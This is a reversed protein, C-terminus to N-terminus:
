RSPRPRRRLLALGAACCGLSVAGLMIGGALRVHDRAASEDTPAVVVAAADRPVDAAFVGDALLFPTAADYGAPGAAGGPGQVTPSYTPAGSGADTVEVVLTFPVDVPVADDTAREAAVAVWYDGPVSGTLDDFRNAYRVPASGEVLRSPEDAAYDGTDVAEEVENGFADRLPDLLVLEVDPEDSDLAALAADDQEPVDVRVALSGGWGVPVRYLVTGGQPVADAYTTGPELAPADDFSPSGSIAVPDGTEPVTVRPSDSPEPPETVLGQVPAEEVVRVAIPLDTPASSSYRDVTFTIEDATLCPDDRDDEAGISMAVGVLRQSVTYSGSSQDSGCDTQTGDAAPVRVTLGLGDGGDPSAPAGVVGLHITSNAMTRVYAFEHGAAASTAPGLVDAWVGATLLTPLLPDTSPEVEAGGLDVAAPEAAAAPWVGVGLALLLAAGSRVATPIWTM